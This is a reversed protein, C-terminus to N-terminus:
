KPSNPAGPYRYYCSCGYIVMVIIKLGTWPLPGGVAPTEGGAWVLWGVAMFGVAAIVARYGRSTGSNRTQTPLSKDDRIAQIQLKLATVSVRRSKVTLSQACLLIRYPLGCRCVVSRFKWVVVWLTWIRQWNPNPRLLFVEVSGAATHM